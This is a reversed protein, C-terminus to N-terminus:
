LLPEEELSEVRDELSDVSTRMDALETKQITLLQQLQTLSLKRDLAVMLDNIAEEAKTLRSLLRSYQENSVPM